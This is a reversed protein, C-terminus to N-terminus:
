NIGCVTGYEIGIGGGTFEITIISVSEGGHIDPLDIKKTFVLDFM